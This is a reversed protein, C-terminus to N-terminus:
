KLELLIKINGLDNSFLKNILSSDLDIFVKTDLELNYNYTKLINDEKYFLIKKVVYKNNSNNTMNFLVSFRDLKSIDKYHYISEIVKTDLLIEKDIGKNLKINYEMGTIIDGDRIPIAEESIVENASTNLSCGILLTMIFIVMIGVFGIKKM